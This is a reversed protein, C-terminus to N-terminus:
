YNGNKINDIEEAYIRKVLEDLDTKDLLDDPKKAINFKKCYGIKAKNILPLIVSEPDLEKKAKYLKKMQVMTPFFSKRYFMPDNRMYVIIDDVLNYTLDNDFDEIENMRM